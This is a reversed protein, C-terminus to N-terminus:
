LFNMSIEFKQEIMSIDGASKNETGNVQRVIAYLCM